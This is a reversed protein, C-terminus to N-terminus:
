RLLFERHHCTECLTQDTKQQRGGGREGIRCPKITGTVPRAEQDSPVRAIIGDRQPDRAPLAHV